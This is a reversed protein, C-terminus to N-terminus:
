ECTKSLLVVVSRTYLYSDDDNRETTSRKRHEAQRDLSVELENLQRHVRELEKHQAITERELAQAAQWTIGLGM